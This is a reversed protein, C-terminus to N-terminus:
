WYFMLYFFSTLTISFLVNIIFGAKLMDKQPIFGTSFAMANPPTGVPMMFGYSAAITAPLVLIVPNIKLQNALVFLLPLIMAASATNSMFETLVICFIVIIWLFIIMPVFEILGAVQEILLAGLGSEDIVMGLTLGGGFLILIEWRVSKLIEEWSLIKTIFLLFVAFIAVLSNFNSEINLLPSILGDTMWLTVIILFIAALTKVPAAKDREIVIDTMIIKKDPKFYLTLVAIMLPFTILFLPLSYKMWEIFSLGLIAGGIANPPTSIITLIGGANASYAIGIMLFRSEASIKNKDVVGLMGLALPIMMAASSTNGVWCAIMSTAFMLLIASRYFNGHALRILKRALMKDVSHRSLAGALAFGGLFLFLIPNSFERFAVLPYTLQLFIAIVPILLGTLALPIAETIWLVAAMVVLASARQAQQNDFDPFYLLSCFLTLAIIM